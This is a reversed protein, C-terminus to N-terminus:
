ADLAELATRCADPANWNLPGFMVDDTGYTFLQGRGSFVVGVDKWILQSGDIWWVSCAEITV